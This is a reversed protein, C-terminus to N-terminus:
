SMLGRVVKADGQVGTLRHNLGAHMYGLRLHDLGLLHLITAQLDKVRVPDRAIRYGLEDTEGYVTGGRVGGGAMWMTFAHPHHDRGLFNKNGDRFEAVPTRGFEGGWVILTEDLLGRRRLDRILAAVPQDMERCKKPLQTLLDDSPSTGHGDWGWDYLQVFRVGREVLRRALLCSNALSPNGPSAGYEELTASSERTLDMADPVAMQMRYALEYQAIRAETERDGHRGFGLKGLSAIADITARRTERLMGEPDKVYLVPDGSARCQVGQYVSPLFGSGWVSKGADPTKDGSVLVVFAPLDRTECGLGYGVWSGFSAAGFRSEGTHLLLQAPAHNFQDTTMTNIVCVEDEITRFHPLLDSTWLGARGARSFKHQPALLTPHGKIFAFKEGKLYEDPCPKGHFEALKPKYDLLELQSPSGALHIYIVNKARAAFHPARPALPDEIAKTQDSGAAKARRTLLETLAIGGLSFAAVGGALNGLFTRRTAQAIEAAACAASDNTERIPVNHITM